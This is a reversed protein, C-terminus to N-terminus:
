ARHKARGRSDGPTLRYTRQLFGITERAARLSCNDVPPRIAALTWNASGEASERPQILIRDVREFGHCQKLARLCEKQLEVSSRVERHATKVTM